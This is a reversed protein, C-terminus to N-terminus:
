VDRRDVGARELLDELQRTLAVLSDTELGAPIFKLEHPLSAGAVSYDEVTGNARRSPDPTVQVIGLESLLVHAEYADPGLGIHRVRIDSEIRFGGPLGRHYHALVLLFLLETDELVYIWGQTFVSIPV